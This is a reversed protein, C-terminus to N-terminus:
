YDEEHCEHFDDDACADSCYRRGCDNDCWIMNREIVANCVSCLDSRMDATITFTIGDRTRFIENGLGDHTCSVSERMLVDGFRRGSAPDDPVVARIYPNELVTVSGKMHTTYGGNEYMYCVSDIPYLFSM